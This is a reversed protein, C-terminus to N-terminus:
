FTFIFLKQMLKYKRIGKRITAGDELANKTDLTTLHRSVLLEM